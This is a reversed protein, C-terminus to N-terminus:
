FTENNIHNIYELLLENIDFVTDALSCIHECKDKPINYIEILRKNEEIVEDETM